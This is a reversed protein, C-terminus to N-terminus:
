FISRFARVGEEFQEQPWNDFVHLSRPSSLIKEPTIQRVYEEKSTAIAQSWICLLPKGFAEALPIIFSCQGVMGSAASALDFLDTVSTQCVLDLDHPVQYVPPDGSIQIRYCDDLGTAVRSFAEPEPLIERGFNDKRNMPAHPAAILVIPRGAAAMTVREILALNKQQWAIRLEISERIGASICIDQWQNTHEKKRNSYHATIDIRARSFVDTAVPLDAFMQPFNTCVQLSEGKRLYHEVVARVYM